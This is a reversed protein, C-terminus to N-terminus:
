EVPKQAKRVYTGSGVRREVLRLNQLDHLARAVTPRSSGFQKVFEAESPLRDGDKLRGSEIDALVYEFVQRHKTKRSGQTKHEIHPKIRHGIM